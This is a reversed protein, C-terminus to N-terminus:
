TQEVFQHGPVTCGDKAAGFYLTRHPFPIEIGLEDFRKKMRRNFERGVTWQRIPRTKIRAKIIVASDAFQDVGLVELPELIDHCFEPESRMGDVIKECVEAVRDTDERYAVGIDILYYSYLKTMNTVTDVSSFPITHVNGSLDRLRISRISLDEVLGGIGAVKVVDGIAVADELLIFVGTIIDQVLKQAGFGVALGIIGAGTLLPGINVGFESLVIMVVMVTLVIMLVKRMLPLLTRVRARYGPTHDPKESKTLYHETAIDVTEWIVASITFLTFMNFLFVGFQRVFPEALWRHADVNWAELVATATIFIIGTRVIFFLIPAYRNLRKALIPIKQRLAENAIINLSIRNRIGQITIRATFLLFASLFTGRLLYLFGGDIDWWWVVFVSILYIVALIHWVAALRCRVRRIFSRRVPLDAEPGRIWVAMAARNRLIGVIMMVVLILGLLDMLDSFGGPPLGFLLATGALLYGTLAIFLLRRLWSFLSVASESRLPVLRLSPVSPALILRTLIVLARGTIYVSFIQVAITDIATGPRHFFLATFAVMTFAALACFRVAARAFALWLATSNNRGARVEIRKRFSALLREVVFESIWAMLLILVIPMAQSRLRGLSDPDFINHQVWDALAEPNPFYRGISSIAGSAEEWTTSVSETLRVSFPKEPVPPALQNQLAILARIQGLLQKREKSNEIKAALTKLDEATAPDVPSAPVHITAPEQSFALEVPIVLLFCLFGALICSGTLRLATMATRNKIKNEWFTRM